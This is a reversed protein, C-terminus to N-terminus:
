TTKAVAFNVKAIKLVQCKPCIWQDYSWSQGRPTWCYSAGTSIDHVAGCGQCNLELLSGPMGCDSHLTAPPPVARGGAGGYPTAAWDGFTTCPSIGLRIRPQAAARVLLDSSM